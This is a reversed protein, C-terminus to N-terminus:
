RGMGEMLEAPLGSRLRVLFPFGGPLRRSTYVGHEGEDVSPLKVVELEPPLRFRLSIWSGSARLMGIGDLREALAEALNLTRRLHGLGVSGHSYLLARPARPLVSLTM